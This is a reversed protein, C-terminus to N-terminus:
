TPPQSLRSVAIPFALFSEPATSGDKNLLPLFRVEYPEKQMHFYVDIVRKDMDHRQKPPSDSQEMSEYEKRIHEGTLGPITPLFSRVHATNLM